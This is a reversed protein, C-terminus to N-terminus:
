AYKLGLLIYYKEHIDFVRNDTEVWYKDKHEVWETRIWQAATYSCIISYWEVGDVTSSTVTHIPLNEGFISQWSSLFKNMHSKGTQRGSTIITIEKPNMGSLTSWLEKQYNHMM